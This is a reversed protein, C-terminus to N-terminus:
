DADSTVEIKVFTNGTKVEPVPGVAGSRLLKLAPVIALMADEDDIIESLTGSEEALLVLEAPLRMKVSCVNEGTGTDVTIELMRRDMDDTKKLQVTPIKEDGHILADVTCGLIAALRGTSELDPYSVDNAWKSVAQATVGCKEALEEQTLKAKKKYQAITQGITTKRYIREEQNDDPLNM